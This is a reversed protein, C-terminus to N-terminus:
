VRRENLFVSVEELTWFIRGGNRGVMDAVALLSKRQADSFVFGSDEQLVCFLTRHPRKISDEVVEAISYVGNMLPTITYLCYNSTIRQRREEEQCEPTWDEVVPNFYDIALLPILRERWTSGNCTGGLFVKIM